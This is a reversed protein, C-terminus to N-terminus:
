LHRRRQRAEPDRLGRWKEPMPRLAKSLVTLREVRVSLEGRKTRVVRGEAGVIDGLDLDDMIDYGPGLDGVSVFLQLDDTADRIPPRDDPQDPMPGPTGNM